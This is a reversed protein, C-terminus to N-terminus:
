IILAHFLQLLQTPHVSFDYLEALRTANKVIWVVISPELSPPSIIFTKESLEVSEV